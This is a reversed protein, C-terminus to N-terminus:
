SLTRGTAARVLLDLEGFNGSKLLLSIRHDPTSCWPVGRDAEADVVVSKVGLADVVAGSTEGGAVIVRRAGAAVAAKALAGMTAELQDAVSADAPGREDAPASSYIMVPKDGLHALLWAHAPGFLDGPTAATRPDLRHSAFHQRAHAVQGLTTNSCSGAFVVSAGPPAPLPEAADDCGHDAVVQGLAGALGAAGTLVAMGEVARAITILDDDTLADLVVHRIGEGAAHRLEDALAASGRRIHQWDILKVPHPSQAAMLRPLHSDTMPSLPHHRMSSESLLQDAVFLHGHYVTRGHEPAAPCVITMSEGAAELLADTVPGINGAATSDFTSCYKFYITSVRAATILWERAALSMTVADEADLARTKLAVVVADVDDFQVTDDPPGFLLVTRLGHRRFAAAVDTGGTYDDAICGITRSSV